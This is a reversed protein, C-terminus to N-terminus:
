LKSGMKNQGESLKTVNPVADDHVLSAIKKNDIMLSRPVQIQVQPDIAAASKIKASDTHTIVSWVVAALSIIITTVQAVIGADSFASFGKAALWACAVPIIIRLIGTIQDQNPMM